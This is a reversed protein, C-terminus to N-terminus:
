VNGTTKLKFGTLNYVLFLSILLIIIDVAFINLLKSVLYFLGTVALIMIIKVPEYTIKIKQESIIVLYLASSFYSFFTAAAAGMIGYVPIFIFNLVINIVLAIFDGILFHVSKGSVYPYVSYCTVLASFFYSILIVPIIGIGGKYRPDFLYLGSFSVNFLDDIFISVVLFILLSVAIIKTMSKGFEEKYNGENYLRISYPTWASRLSIVFINMVLAIRYSFSYIGVESKGLFHDIIFRDIVDVSASLVGAIFLPYSFLFFIRMLEPKFVGLYNMKLFPVLIM